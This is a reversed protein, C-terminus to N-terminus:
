WTAHSIRRWTNTAICVYLYSSDWCIDGTSGTAGASAPTKATRLRLVDSNIDLLRTPATTGIGVTGDSRIRMREEISANAPKTEFTIAGGANSTDDSTTGYVIATTTLNANRFAFGGVTGSSAGGGLYQLARTTGYVTVEMQGSSNPNRRLLFAESGAIAMAIQDAGPSYIGCDTDGTFTLSPGSASGAAFTVVGTFTPSATPAAGLTALQAAADADDLLARGAATCTIEEAPGAGASSRGLIRDTASVYPSVYDVGSGTGYWCVGDTTNIAIEGDLLASPSVGASANRRHQYIM